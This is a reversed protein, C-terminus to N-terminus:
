GVPVEAFRELAPGHAAIGADLVAEAVSPNPVLPDLALAQAALRRDGTLAAQV